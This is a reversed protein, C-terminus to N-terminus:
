ADVVQLLTPDFSLHVEAGDVVKCGAGVTLAVNFIQGPGIFPNAPLITGTFPNNTAVPSVTVPSSTGCLSFNQTNPAFPNSVHVTDFGAAAIDLRAYTGAAVTLAYAGTTTTAQAVTLTESPKGQRVIQLSLTASTPGTLSGSLTAAATKVVVN